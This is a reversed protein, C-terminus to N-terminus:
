DPEVGGRERRRALPQGLRAHLSRPAYRTVTCRGRTATRATAASPASADGTVAAMRFGVGVSRTTAVSYRKARPLVTTAGPAREMTSTLWPVLFCSRTRRRRLAAPLGTPAASESGRM